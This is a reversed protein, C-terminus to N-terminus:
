RNVIKEMDAQARDMTENLDQDQVLIQNITKGIIMANIISGASPNTVGNQTGFVKLSDFAAPM